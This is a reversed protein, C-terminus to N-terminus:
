GDGSTHQWQAAAGSPTGTSNACARRATSGDTDGGGKSHVTLGTGQDAPALSHPLLTIRVETSVLQWSDAEPLPQRAAAAAAAAQGQESPPSQGTTVGGEGGKAQFLISRSATIAAPVTSHTRALVGVAALGQVETPSPAQASQTWQQKRSRQKRSTREQEARLHAKHGATTNEPGSVRAPLAFWPHTLVQEM